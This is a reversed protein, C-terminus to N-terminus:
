SEIKKYQVSPARKADQAAQFCSYLRSNIKLSECFNTYEWLTIQCESFKCNATFTFSKALNKNSSWCQMTLLYQM